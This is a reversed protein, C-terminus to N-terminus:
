ETMVVADDNAQADEFRGNVMLIARTGRSAENIPIHTLPIMPMVVITMLDDECCEEDNNVDDNDDNADDNADIDDYEIIGVM